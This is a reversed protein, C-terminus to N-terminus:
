WATPEPPRANGTAEQGPVGSLHQRTPPAATPQLHQQQPVQPPLYQLLVRVRESQRCIRLLVFTLLILYRSILLQTGFRGAKNCVICMKNELEALVLKSSEAAKSTGVGSGSSSSGSGGGTKVTGAGTRDAILEFHKRQKVGRTAPPSYLIPRKNRRRAIHTLQQEYYDIKGYHFDKRETSNCSRRKRETKRTALVKSEDLTLLGFYRLFMPQALEAIDTPQPEVFEEIPSRDHDRECSDDSAKVSLPTSSRSNPSSDSSAGGSSAGRKPLPDSKTKAMTGRQRPFSPKAIEEPPANQNQNRAKTLAQLLNLRSKKIAVTPPLEPLEDEEDDQDEEVKVPSPEPLKPIPRPLSTEGSKPLTKVLKRPVAITEPAIKKLAQERAQQANSSSSGNGTFREEKPKLLSVQQKQNYPHAGTPSM